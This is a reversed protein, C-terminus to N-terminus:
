SNVVDRLEQETIGRQAALREAEIIRQLANGKTVDREMKQIRRELDEQELEHQRQYWSM